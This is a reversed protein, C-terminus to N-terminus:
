DQTQEESVGYNKRQNVSINIQKFHTKINRTM